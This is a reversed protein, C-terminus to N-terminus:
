NRVHKKCVSPKGNMFKESNYRFHPVRCFVIQIEKPSAKLANQCNHTISTEHEATEIQLDHSKPIVECLWFGVVTSWSVCDRHRSCYKWTYEGCWMMRSSLISNVASIITNPGAEKELGLMSCLARAFNHYESCQIYVSNMVAMVGELQPVEFLM